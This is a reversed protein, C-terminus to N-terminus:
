PCTGMAANTWGRNYADYSVQECRYREEHVTKQVAARVYPDCTRGVYRVAPEGGFILVLMGGIVILAGALVYQTFPLYGAFLKM